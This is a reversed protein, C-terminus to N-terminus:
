LNAPKVNDIFVKNIEAVMQKSASTKVIPLANLVPSM